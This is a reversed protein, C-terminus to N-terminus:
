TDIYNQYKPAYNTLASPILNFENQTHEADDIRMKQLLPRM